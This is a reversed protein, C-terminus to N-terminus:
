LRPLAFGDFTRLAPPLLLRAYLAAVSVRRESSIVCHIRQLLGLVKSFVRGSTMILM